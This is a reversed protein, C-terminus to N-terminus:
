VGRKPHHSQHLMDRIADHTTYATNGQWHQVAVTQQTRLQLHLQDIGEEYYYTPFKEMEPNPRSTLEDIIKAIAGEKQHANQSHATASLLQEVLTDPDVETLPTQEFLTHMSSIQLMEAVSFLRNIVTVHTLQAMVRPLYQDFFEVAALAREISRANLVLEEPGNWCFEGIVIPEDHSGPHKQFAIHAAEQTYLWVWRKRPPDSEICGLKLLTQETQIQNSVAYHLRTPQLLEGTTTGAAQRLQEPSLGGRRQGGQTRMTKKITTRKRNRKRKM